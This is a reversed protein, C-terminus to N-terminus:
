GEPKRDALKQEPERPILPVLPIGLTCFPHGGALISPLFSCPPLFLTERCPTPAQPVWSLPHPPVEALKLNNKKEENSLHLTLNNIQSREEKKLHKNIKLSLSLM